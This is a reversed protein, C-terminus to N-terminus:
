TIDSCFILPLSHLFSSIPPVLPSFHPLLLIPLLPSPSTFPLSHIFVLACQIHPLVPFLAPSTNPSLLLSTLPSCKLPGNHPSALTFPPALHITPILPTGHPMLTLSSTHLPPPLSQTNTPPSPLQTLSPTLPPPSAIPRGHLNLHLPTTQLPSSSSNVPLTALPESHTSHSPSFSFM